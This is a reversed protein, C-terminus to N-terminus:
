TQVSFYGRTRWGNKLVNRPAFYISWNNDYYTRAAMSVNVAPYVMGAQRLKCFWAQIEEDYDPIDAFSIHLSTIPRIGWLVHSSSYPESLLTCTLSLNAYGATSYFHMLTQTSLSAVGVQKVGSYRSVHRAGCFLLPKLLTVRLSMGVVAFCVSSLPMSNM